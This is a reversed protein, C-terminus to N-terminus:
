RERLRIKPSPLIEMLAEDHPLVPVSAERLAANGSRGGTAAYVPKGQEFARICEACMAGSANIDLAIVLDSLAFVISDRRRNNDGICHDDLRYPSLALDRELDFVADRIRAAAFPPRDFQPGLAERLGRDFVYITPLNRRQAALALRQYEPRDHGTVPVGGAAALQTAIEDLRILSASSAKRSLAITFTFRGPVADEQISSDLLALNGLTYILPPPVDCYRELRVPYAAGTISVLQLSQARLTKALAASQQLLDARHEILYSAARPDLELENQLHDAPLNLIDEATLRRQASGSLLRILAKEGLHPVSQLLLLFQTTGVPELDPNKTM